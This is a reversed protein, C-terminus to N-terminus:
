MELADLIQQGTGCIDTWKAIPTESITHRFVYCTNNNERRASKAYRSSNFTLSKEAPHTINLIRYSFIIEECWGFNWPM